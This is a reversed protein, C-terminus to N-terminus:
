PKNGLHITMEVPVYRLPSIQPKSRVGMVRNGGSKGIRLRANRESEEMRGEATMLHVAELALM